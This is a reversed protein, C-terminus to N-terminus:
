LTKLYEILDRKQRASLDLGYSHGTNANGPKATDFISRGASGSEEKSERYVFGMEQADYDSRGAVFSKPRGTLGVLVAVSPVSGNHLYPARMWVGDLPECLYGKAPKFGNAEWLGTKRGIENAVASPNKRCAPEGTKLDKATLVNCAQEDPTNARWSDYRNRDTGIEEVPITRMYFSKSSQRADPRYPVWRGEDSLVLVQELVNVRNAPDPRMQLLGHCAACNAKFIEAGRAVAHPDPPDFPWLPSPLNELWGNIADVNELRIFLPLAGVSYAAARGRVHASQTNGDYHHNLRVTRRQNWVPPFRVPSVSGDDPIKAVQYKFANSADIRGVGAPARGSRVEWLRRDSKLARVFFGYLREELFNLRPRNMKTLRQNIKGIIARETFRPQIALDAIFRDFDWIDFSHNPAGAIAYQTNGVRVAGRHCASCNLAVRTFRVETKLAGLHLATNAMVLGEPVGYSAFFRGNSGCVTVKNPDDVTKQAALGFRDFGKFGIREFNEPFIDPLVAYIWYPIGAGGETGIPGYRFRFEPDNMLDAGRAECAPPLQPRPIAKESPLHLDFVIQGTEFTRPSRAAWAFLLACTLGASLLGAKLIRFFRFGTNQRGRAPTM